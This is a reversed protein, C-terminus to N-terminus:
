DKVANAIVIGGIRNVLPVHRLLDTTKLLAFAASQPLANAIHPLIYTSYVIEVSMGAADFMERLQRANFHTEDAALENYLKKVKMTLDFVFRLASDHPDTSLWKGGTKLVRSAHRLTGSPDSMHHLAGYCIAADFNGEALPLDEANCLVFDVRDQKGAARAKAVAIRLMEESIDCSVVMHNAQVLPIVQRGTGGAIDLVCQSDGLGAIWRHLYLQDFVRYFRLDTVGADYVASDTKFFDIQEQQSAFNRSDGAPGIEEHLGYRAAFRQYRGKDRLRRPLLDLISDEMRFWRGNKSSVLRGDLVEGRDGTTFVELELSDEGTDPDRFQAELSKLM